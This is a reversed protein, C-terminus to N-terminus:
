DELTPEDGGDVKIQAVKKVKVIQWRASTSMGMDIIPKQKSSQDDPDLPLGEDDEPNDYVGNGGTTYGIFARFRRGGSGTHQVHNAYSVTQDLLRDTAVSSDNNKKQTLELYSILGVPNDMFKNIQESLAMAEDYLVRASGRPITPNPEETSAAAAGLEFSPHSHTSILHLAQEVMAHNSRITDTYEPYPLALQPGNTGTPSTYKVV